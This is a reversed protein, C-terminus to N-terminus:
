IAKTLDPGLMQKVILETASGYHIFTPALKSAHVAQQAATWSPVENIATLVFVVSLTLTALAPIIGLFRNPLSATLIGPIIHGVFRLAAKIIGEVLFLIVLFGILTQYAAPLAFFHDIWHGLNAGFTFALALSLVFAALDILQSILGRRLGNFIAVITLFILIYDVYNM